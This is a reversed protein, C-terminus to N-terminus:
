SFLEAAKSYIAALELLKARIQERTHELSIRTDAAPRVQLMAEDPRLKNRDIEDYALDLGLLNQGTAANVAAAAARAAPWHPSSHKQEWDLKEAAANADLEHNRMPLLRDIYNGAADLRRKFDSGINWLANPLDEPQRLPFHAVAAVEISQYHDLLELNSNQAGWLWAAFRWRNQGFRTGLHTGRNSKGHLLQEARRVNKENSTVRRTKKQKTNQM